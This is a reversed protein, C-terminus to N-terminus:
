YEDHVSSLASRVARISKASSALPIRYYSILVPSSPIYRSPSDFRELFASPIRATYFYLNRTDMAPLALLHIKFDTLIEKTAESFPRSTSRSTGPFAHRAPIEPVTVDEMAGADRQRRRQQALAILVAAIYPDEMENPPRLRRQRKQRLSTIPPNVKNRSPTKVSEDRRSGVAELDLYALNPATSHSSSCSFTSDTQLTVAVHQDFYFALDFSVHRHIGDDELLDQIALTKFASTGANRLHDVAARIAAETPLNAAEGYQQQDGTAKGKSCCGKNASGSRRGQGPGSRENQQQAAKELVFQCDLLQLHQSTWHFPSVYLRSRSHKRIISNISSPQPESLVAGGIRRKQGSKPAIPPSVGDPPLGSAPPLASVPM